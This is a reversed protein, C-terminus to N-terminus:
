KFHSSHPRVPATRCARWFTALRRFARLRTLEVIRQPLLRISPLPSDHGGNHEAGFTLYLVSSGVYHAFRMDRTM